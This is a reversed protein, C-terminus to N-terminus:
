LNAAAVYDPKGVSHACGKHVYFDGCIHCVAHRHFTEDTGAHYMWDNSMTDWNPGGHLDQYVDYENRVHTDYPVPVALAALESTQAQQQGQAPSQEATQSTPQEMSPANSQSPTPEQSPATQTPINQSLPVEQNGAGPPVTAEPATQGMMSSTSSSPGFGAPYVAVDPVVVVKSKKEKEKEAKAKKATQRTDRKSMPPGTPASPKTTTPTPQSPPPPDILMDDDNDDPLPIKSPDLESLLSDDTDYLTPIVTWTSLLDQYEREETLSTGEHEEQASGTDKDQDDTVKENNKTAKSSQSTRKTM